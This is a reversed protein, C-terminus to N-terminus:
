RETKELKWRATQPKEPEIPDNQQPPGEREPEPVVDGPGVPVVTARPQAAEAPPPASVPAPAAPAPQARPAPAASASPPPEAPAAEEPPPPASPAPWLVVALAVALLVGAALLPLVLRSPSKM